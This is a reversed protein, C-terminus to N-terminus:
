ETVLSRGYSYTFTRSKTHWTMASSIAATQRSSIPQMTTAYTSTSKCDQMVLGARCLKRICRALLSPQLCHTMEGRFFLSPNLSLDMFDVLQLIFRALFAVAAEIFSIKRPVRVHYDQTSLRVARQNLHRTHLYLSELESNLLIRDNLQLPSAPPLPAFQGASASNRLTKSPIM